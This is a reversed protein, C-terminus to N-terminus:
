GDNHAGQGFDYMIQAINGLYQLENNEILDEWDAPIMSACNSFGQFRPDHDRSLLCMILGATDIRGDRLFLYTTGKDPSIYVDGSQIERM